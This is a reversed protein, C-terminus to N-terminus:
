HDALEYIAYRYKEGHINKSEITNLRKALKGDSLIMNLKVRNETPTVSFGIPETSLIHTIGISKLFNIIDNPNSADAYGTYNYLMSDRLTQPDFYFLRFEDLSLIKSNQPLERNVWLAVPYTREMRELYSQYSQMGVLPKYQYRFHYVLISFLFFVLLGGVYAITKKYAHHKEFFLKLGSTSAALYVPFVPLLYRVYQGMFFWAILYFFIFFSSFRILKDKKALGYLIFPFSFLYFPGMWEGLSIKPSFQFTSYRPVFTFNWPIMLFSVVGKFPGSGLPGLKYLLDHTLESAVREGIASSFIPFVPNGTLMGNRIFLFGGFILFGIAFNFVTKFSRSSGKSKFILYAFSAAFPLGGLLGSYKTQAALGLFAGSLFFLGNRKIEFSRWFLYFSLFLFFTVGIDVYTTSVQVMFTPTLWLMLGSFLALSRKKTRQLVFIILAFTLFVGAWWHFLKAASVSKFMLGIVYLANMTISQYSKFDYPPPIIQGMQLYRKPLNLHHAVADGSIEPLFCAALTILLSIGLLSQWILEFGSERKLFIVRFLSSLWKWFEKKITKRKFLLLFVFLAVVANQNLAGLYSSFIVYYALVGFGLGVYVIGRMLFTEKELWKEFFSGLLYLSPLLGVWLLITTLFAPAM